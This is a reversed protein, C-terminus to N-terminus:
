ALALADLTLRTDIQRSLKRGICRRTYADLLCALYVFSSPLRVSTTDAVWVQDPASVATTALRNPYAANGHASDTTVVFRRKLHRLLLEQRMIRLVRKHNVEWGERQLARTVRRYGYGPFELFLHEIADHLAV